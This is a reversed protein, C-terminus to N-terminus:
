GFILNLWTAVSSAAAHLTTGIENHLLTGGTVATGITAEVARERVKEVAVGAAKKGESKAKRWLGAVRALFRGKEAVRRVSPQDKQLEDRIDRSAAILATEDEIQQDEPPQNHGMMGPRQRLIDLEKELRDLREIVVNRQESEERSGLRESKGASIKALTADFQATLPNDKSVAFHDARIRDVIQQAQAANHLLARHEIYDSMFESRAAIAIERNGKERAAIGQEQGTQLAASSIQLSPSSGLPQAHRDFDFAAFVGFEESWGLILTHEGTMQEFRTVGSTVQIRYEHKPRAAGGGHTLNWIYIRLRHVIDDRRIVVLMPHVNRESLVEVQWGASALAGVMNRLLTAKSLRAM